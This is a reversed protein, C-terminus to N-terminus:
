PSESELNSRTDKKLVFVHCASGLYRSLERRRELSLHADAISCGTYFLGTAAYNAIKWGNRTFTDSWAKRRFYAIESWANGAHEGHVLPPFLYRLPNTLNTWIRWAASPLVHVALGDSKLVRQIENQFLDIHKIHELTNSSFVVDFSADEFPIHAGDYLLVQWAPQTPISSAAVDIASVDFGRAALEAAQWGSGAGIELLRGRSAVFRLAFDVEYLRLARLHEATQPPLLANRVPKAIRKLYQVFASRTM